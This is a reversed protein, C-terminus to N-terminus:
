GLFTGSVRRGMRALFYFSAIAGTAEITLFSLMLRGASGELAWGLLRGAGFGTLVLGCAFLGPGLWGSRIACAILFLGFALDFGGYTARLDTRATATPLVIELARAWSVPTILFGVGIAAFTLGVVWLLVREAIMTM